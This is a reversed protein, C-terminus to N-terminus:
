FNVIKLKQLEDKWHHDKTDIEISSATLSELRPIVVYCIACKPGIVQEIKDILGCSCCSRVM